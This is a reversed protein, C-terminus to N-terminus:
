LKKFLLRIHDRERLRMYGIRRQQLVLMNGQPQKDCRRRLLLYSADMHAFGAIYRRGRSATVPILPCLVVTAIWETHFNTGCLVRTRNIAVNEADACAFM